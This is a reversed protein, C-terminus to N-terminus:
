LKNPPQCYMSVKWNRSVHELPIKFWTKALSAQVPVRLCTKKSLVCTTIQVSKSALILLITFFDENLSHMKLFYTFPTPNFYSGWPTCTSWLPPYTLSCYYMRRSPRFVMLNSLVKNTNFITSLICKVRNENRPRANEISKNEKNIKKEWLEKLYM